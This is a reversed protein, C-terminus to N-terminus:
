DRLSERIQPEASLATGRMQTIFDLWRLAQQRSAADIRPRSLTGLLVEHDLFFGDALFPRAQEAIKARDAERLNLVSAFPQQAWQFVPCEKLKTLESRLATVRELFEPLHFGNFLSLTFDITLGGVFDVQDLERLHSLVQDFKGGRIWEFVPGWGDMSVGIELRLGRLEKVWESPPRTGNSQIFVNPAKARGALKQLFELCLPELTPEGGKVIILDLQDAHDLIEALLERSVRAPKEFPATFDRFELGQERARRDHRSWGTSFESSCMACSLNCLNSFSIELHRVAPKEAALVLREAEARGYIRSKREWVLTRRSSLRQKEKNECRRCSDPWEGDLLRRHVSRRNEELGALSPSPPLTSNLCFHSFGQPHVAVANMPLFCGQPKTPNGM